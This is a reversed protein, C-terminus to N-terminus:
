PVIQTGDADLLTLADVPCIGCAEALRGRDIEPPDAKVRVISEEDLEFVEPALEICNESAICTNRDVRVTLDGVDRDAFRERDAM